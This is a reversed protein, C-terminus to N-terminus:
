SCPFTVALEPQYKGDFEFKWMKTWITVEPNSKLIFKLRWICVENLCWGLKLSWTQIDIEFELILSWVVVEFKLKLSWSWDEFKLKLSWNWVEVEFKLKMSWSWVEGKFELPFTLSLSWVVNLIQLKM